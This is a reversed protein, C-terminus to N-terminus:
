NNEDPSHNGIIKIFKKDLRLGYVTERKKESDIALLPSIKKVIPNLKSREVQLRAVRKELAERKEKATRTQEELWEQRLKSESNMWRLKPMFCQYLKLFRQPEFDRDAQFCKVGDDDPPSKTDQKHLAKTEAYYAFLASHLPSLSLKQGNFKITGHQLDILLEPQAAPPLTDIKMQLHKILEEIDKLMQSDEGLLSRLRVVPIDALQLNHDRTQMVRMQRKADRVALPESRKPPFFFEENTEFEEQVLIHTLRDQERGYLTLALLMHASMTRRGGGILCHLTQQDDDTLRKIFGLLQAQLFQNDATSRIDELPTGDAGKLVIIHDQTFAICSPEIDYERCFRAIAGDQGGLKEWAVQKGKRTTVIYVAEIQVKEKVWLYFLTETVIQPTNGSVAVLIHRQQQCKASM